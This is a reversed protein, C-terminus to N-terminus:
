RDPSSTAISAASSVNVGRLENLVQGSPHAERKFTEVALGIVPGLGTSRPRRPLLCWRM